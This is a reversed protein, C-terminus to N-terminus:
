PQAMVLALKVISQFYVDPYKKRMIELVEKGHQEWDQQLDRLFEESPKNRSGVSQDPGRPM